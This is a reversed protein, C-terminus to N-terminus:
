VKIKKLLKNQEFAKMNMCFKFACHDSYRKGHKEEDIQMSTFYEELDSSMFVYELVAKEITQKYKRIRTSVGECHESANMPKLNYRNRLEFLLEGNSSMRHLDKPIVDYGLKAIFDGVMIVSDGNLYAM